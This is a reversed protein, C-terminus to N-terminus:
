PHKVWWNRWIKGRNKVAQFIKLRQIQSARLRYIAPTTRDGPRLIDWPHRLSTHRCFGTVFAGLVKSRLTSIRIVTEQRIACQFHMFLIACKLVWTTEERALKTNLKKINKLVNQTPRTWPVGAPRFLAIADFIRIYMRRGQGRKWLWSESTSTYLHISCYESSKTTRDSDSDLIWYVGHVISNSYFPGLQARLKEIEMELENPLTLSKVATTVLKAVCISKAMLRTSLTVGSASSFILTWSFASRAFRSTSSHRVSSKSQITRSSKTAKLLDGPM